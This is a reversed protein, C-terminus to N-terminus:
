SLFTCSLMRAEAEAGLLWCTEVRYCPLPTALVPRLWTARPLQLTARLHWYNRQLWSIQPETQTDERLWYKAMWSSPWNLRVAVQGKRPTIMSATTQFKGRASDYIEASATPPNSGTVGGAILVRGDNLLTATHFVRNVTLAGTSHFGPTSPSSGSAGCGCCLALFCLVFLTQGISHGSSSV